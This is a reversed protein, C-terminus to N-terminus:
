GYKQVFRAIPAGSDNLSVKFVFMAQGGENKPNDRGGPHEWASVAMMTEGKNKYFTPTGPGFMGLDPKSEMWPKDVTLKVPHPNKLSPGLNVVGISYTDKNWAGGSYFVMWKKQSGDKNSLHAVAANEMVPEEWGGPTNRAVKIWSSGKAFNMGRDNLERIQLTNIGQGEDIRAQLFWTGHADQFLYPDIAWKGNPPCIAPGEHTIFPGHPSKAEAKWICMQKTGARQQTTYLVSHNKIRAGAPAWTMEVGPRNATAGKGVRPSADGKLVWDGSDNLVVHPTHMEPVKPTKGQQALYAHLVGDINAISPSAFKADYSSAKAKLTTGQLIEQPQTNTAPDPPPDEVPTSAGASNACGTVSVAALSATVLVKAALRNPTREPGSRPSRM